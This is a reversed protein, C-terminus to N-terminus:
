PAACSATWRSIRQRPPRAGHRDIELRCIEAPDLCNARAWAELAQDIGQRYATSSFGSRLRLGWGPPDNGYRGNVTPVGTELTAWMADEQLWFRYRRDASSLLFTPCHAELADTIVAVRRRATERDYYPTRSGQEIAMLLVLIAAVVTGRRNRLRREFFYAVGVAAPILLLMSVRGVARLGGTGPLYEYLVRWLTWGGPWLTALLVALLSLAALLRTSIRQRYHWLGAIALVTAVVGLGGAHASSRWHPGKPWLETGYIWGYLWNEHGMLLWSQWRPLLPEVAAWTRLGLIQAALLYRELLPAALAAALLGCVALAPAEGRALELLRRRPLRWALALVTALGLFLGFFFLPYFAGYLQLVLALFFVAIWARRKRKESALPGDLEITRFLAYLALVLYFWPVLQPHAVNAVRPSGFAFLYAGAAAAVPNLRLVRVLFLHFAVYNLAWVAILWLQFATVPPAGLLRWPTYFPTLSLLIDTHAGVNRAPYFLPPDWLDRHLEQRLLFRHAHELSFHVLRADGLGGPVVAFGTTFLPQLALFLGGALALIPVWFRIRAIMPPSSTVTTGIM